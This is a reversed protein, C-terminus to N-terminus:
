WEGVDCCVWEMRGKGCGIGVLWFREKVGWIWGALVWGVLRFWVQFCIGVWGVGDGSALFGYGYNLIKISIGM